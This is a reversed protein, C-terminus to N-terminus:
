SLGRTLLHTEAGCYAIRAEAWGVERFKALQRLFPMYYVVKM